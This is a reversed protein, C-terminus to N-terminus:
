TRHLKWTQWLEIWSQLGLPTRLGLRKESSELPVPPASPQHLGYVAQAVPFHSLIPLEPRLWCFNMAFFGCRKKFPAPTEPFPPLTAFVQLKLSTEIHMNFSRHFRITPSPQVIKEHATENVLRKGPLQFTQCLYFHPPELFPFDGFGMPNWHNWGMLVRTRISGFRPNIMRLWKRFTSSSEFGVRQYVLM